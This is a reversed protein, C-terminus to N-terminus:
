LQEKVILKLERRSEDPDFFSEIQFIRGNFKIRMDDERMKQVLSANYRIKIEGTAESESAMAEFYQRGDLNSIDAWVDIYDEWTTITEGYENEEEVEEQITILNNLQGAFISM